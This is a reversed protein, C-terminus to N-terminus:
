GRLNPFDSVVLSLFFDSISSSDLRFFQVFRIIFIKCKRKPSKFLVRKDSSLFWLFTFVISINFGDLNFNERPYFYFLKVCVFFFKRWITNLIVFTVMPWFPWTWNESYRKASISKPLPQKNWFVLVFINIPFKFHMPSFMWLSLYYSRQNHQCHNNDRNYSKWFRM